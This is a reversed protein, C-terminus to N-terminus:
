FCKISFHGDQGWCTCKASFYNNTSSNNSSQHDKKKQNYDKTKNNVTNAAGSSNDNSNKTESNKNMQSAKIEESLTLVSKPETYTHIDRYHTKNSNHILDEFLEFAYKWLIQKKCSDYFLCGVGKDNRIELHLHQAESFRKILCLFTRVNHTPDM